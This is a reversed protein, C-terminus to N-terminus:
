YVSVTLSAMERRVSVGGCAGGGIDCSTVFDYKILMTEQLCYVIPNYKGCLLRFDTINALLGRCKQCLQCVSSREDGVPSSHIDSFAFARPVEDM